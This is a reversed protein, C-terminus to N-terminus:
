GLAFRVEGDTVGAAARVLRYRGDRLERALTLELVRANAPDPEYGTVRCGELEKLAFVGFLGVNAGLDLVSSAPPLAARVQAPLEYVRKVLVDHLTWSDVPHRLWLRTGDRRLRYPHIGDLELMGAVVFRGREHFMRAQRLVRRARRGTRSDAARRILEHRALSM